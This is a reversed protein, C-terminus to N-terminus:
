AVTSTWSGAVQEWHVSCGALGTEAEFGHGGGDVYGADGATPRFADQRTLFEPSMVTRHQIRGREVYNRYQRRQKVPNTEIYSRPVRSSKGPTPLGDSMGVLILFAGLIFQSPHMQVGRLRRDIFPCVFSLNLPKATHFIVQLPPHLRRLCSSTIKRLM